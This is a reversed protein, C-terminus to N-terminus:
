NKIVTYGAAILLEILAPLEAVFQSERLKLPIFSKGPLVSVEYRGEGHVVFFRELEEIKM